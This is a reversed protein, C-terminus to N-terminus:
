PHCRDLGSRIEGKRGEVYGQRILGLTVRQDVYGYDLVAVRLEILCNDEFRGGRYAVLNEAMSVPSRIWRRRYIGREVEFM